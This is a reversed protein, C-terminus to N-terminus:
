RFENQLLHGSTEIIKAKAGRVCKAEDLRCSPHLHNSDNNPQHILTPCSRDFTWPNSFDSSSGPSFYPSWAGVAASIGVGGQTPDEGAGKPRWLSLVTLSKFTTLILFPQIYTIKMYQRSLSSLSVFASFFSMSLTRGSLRLFGCLLSWYSSFSFLSFDLSFIAITAFFANLLHMTLPSIAAWRCRKAWKCSRPMYLPRTSFHANPRINAFDSRSFLALSPSSFPLSLLAPTKSNLWNHCALVCDTLRISNIEM